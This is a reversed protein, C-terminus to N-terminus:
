GARYKPQLFPRLWRSVDNRNSDSHERVQTYTGSRIRITGRRASAQAREQTSPNAMRVTRCPSAAESGFRAEDRVRRLGKKPQHTAMRVTRCPSAAESGITGLRGGSSSRTEFPQHRNIKLALPRRGRSHWSRNITSSSREQTSPNAIRVTRRPSAAESEITGLRGGSSSRTEFPQHRNIKLALPRRGRSHWSRNITSSSSEQTSPNAMRVTRCPSAAESEITGLRGGSSSRTEFSQHRNIKLALPRRGSPHLSWHRNNCTTRESTRRSPEARSTKKADDTDKKPGLM